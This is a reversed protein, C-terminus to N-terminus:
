ENGLRKPPAAIIEIKNINSLTVTVNESSGVPHSKNTSWAVEVYGEFDVDKESRIVIGYREVTEGLKTTFLHEKVLSGVEM